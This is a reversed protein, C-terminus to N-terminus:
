KGTKLSIRSEKNEYYEKGNRIIDDYIYYYVKNQADYYVPVSDVIIDAESHGEMRNGEVATLGDFTDNVEFYDSYTYLNLGQCSSVILELRRQLEYGDGHFIIM